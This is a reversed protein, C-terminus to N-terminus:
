NRPKFQECYTPNKTKDIMCATYQLNAWLEPSGCGNLFFSITLGLITSISIKRVSMNAKM